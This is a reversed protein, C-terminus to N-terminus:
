RPWIEGVLRVPVRTRKQYEHHAYRILCADDSAPDLDDVSAMLDELLPGTEDATIRQHVLRALTSLQYGREEAGGPPMYTQQDWGLVANPM